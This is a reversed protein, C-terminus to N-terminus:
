KMARIIGVRADELVKAFDAARTTEGGEGVRAVVLRWSDRLFVLRRLTEEYTIHQDPPYRLRGAM